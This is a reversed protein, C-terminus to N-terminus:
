TEPLNVTADSKAWEQLLNKISEWMHVVLNFSLAEEVIYFHTLSTKTGTLPWFCCFISIEAIKSLIHLDNLRSRFGYLIVEDTCIVDSWSRPSITNWTTMNNISKECRGGFLGIIDGDFETKCQTLYNSVWESVTM